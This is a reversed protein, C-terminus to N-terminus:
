EPLKADIVYDKVVQEQIGKLTKIPWKKQILNALWHPLAGKPDSQIEVEVMTKTKDIPTLIYASRLLDARVGVTKPANPYEISTMEVQVVGTEANRTAKGRYVFDRNSIPWPLKFEQYVIYETPTTNELIQSVKLRDVWEKRHENDLIVSYIKGIPAEIIAHGKFAMVPSGPITKRYATIGKEENILKWDVGVNPAAPAVDAFANGLLASFIMSFGLWFSIIKM